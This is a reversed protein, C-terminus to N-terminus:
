MVEINRVNFRFIEVVQYNDDFGASIVLTRTELVNNDDIIETDSGSIDITITSSSPAPDLLSPGNVIMENTDCYTLYSVFTPVALVGAVNYCYFEVMGTSHENFEKSGIM